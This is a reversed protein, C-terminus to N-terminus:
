GRVTLVPCPARSVVKHAITPLHTSAGPIGNSQRAGMVILDVQQQAVALITEGVDGPKVVYQPDCWLEADVPVIHRLLETSRPVDPVEEPDIVHLLILRAQFEQALSMAYPAAASRPGFDTAFLINKIEGTPNPHAHSQPGVTLVPCAAKRFLEEAVSGLLLKAVGSRGRTGTVLLDIDRSALTDEINSWVDGELILVEPHTEAFSAVIQKSRQEADVRAAEAAGPEGGPVMLPGVSIPRVHVAYLKAGFRKAFSAVYPIAAEAAPSFDTAFLINALRIRTGADITKM